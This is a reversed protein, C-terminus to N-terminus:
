KGLNFMKLSKPMAPVGVRGIYSLYRQRLQFIYPSNLKYQDRKNEFDAKSKVIFASEFDILASTKYDNTVFPFSPLIHRSQVGNNFLSGDDKKKKDIFEKSASISLRLFELSIDKKGNIDCEPTILIAFEDESFKFIDGTMIPAAILLKTYYIRNYLKAQAEAKNTVVIEDLKSAEALSTALIQDQVISESLLNQFIGIVEGNPEVGDSLATTYIEKIWNPDANELESFIRQASKNITQSWVYPIKLHTNTAEFDKIGTTIKDFETDLHNDIMKKEFFIKNPYLEKLENIIQPDIVEQSYVYILSYISNTKLFEYPNEDPFKIGLDTDEEEQPRKFNWDLILAKYTSISSITKELVNLNNIPIISYGGDLNFKHFLKNVFQENEFIHDDAYLIVGEM